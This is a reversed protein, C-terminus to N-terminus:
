DVRWEKGSQRIGTIVREESWAGSLQLVAGLTTAGVLFFGRTDAVLGFGVGFEEDRYVWGLKSPDEM